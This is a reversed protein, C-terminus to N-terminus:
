TQIFSYICLYFKLSMSLLARNRLAHSWKFDHLPFIASVIWKLFYVKEIQQFSLSTNCTASGHRYQKQMGVEGAIAQTSIEDM